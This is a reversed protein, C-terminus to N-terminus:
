RRGEGVLDSLPTDRGAEARARQLDGEDPPPADRPAQDVLLSAAALKRRRESRDPDFAWGPSAGDGAPREAAVGLDEIYSSMAAHHTDREVVRRLSALAAELISEAGPSGTVDEIESLSLKEFYRLTLVV